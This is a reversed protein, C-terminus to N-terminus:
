RATRGIPRTAPVGNLEYELQSGAPAGLEALKAAILPVAKEVDLVEIDIGVFLITGDKDQMTGGGSVEGLDNAELYEQLPDEYRSGRELPDIAQVIKAYVFHPPHDQIPVSMTAPKTGPRAQSRAAPTPADRKAGTTSDSRDCGFAALALGSLVVVVTTRM